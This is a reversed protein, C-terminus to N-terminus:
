AVRSANVAGPAQLVRHATHALTTSTFELANGPILGDPLDSVFPLTIALLETRFGDGEEHATAVRGHQAAACCVPRDHLVQLGDHASAAHKGIAVDRELRGHRLHETRATREHGGFFPTAGIM